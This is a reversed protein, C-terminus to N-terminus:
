RGPSRRIVLISTKTSTSIKPSRAEVTGRDIGEVPHWVAMRRVVRLRRDVLAEEQEPRDVRGRLVVLARRAEVERRGARRVRPHGRVRGPDGARVRPALRRKEQRVRRRRRRVLSPARDRAGKDKAPPRELPRVSERRRMRLSMPTTGAVLSPRLNAGRRAERGVAPRRSSTM